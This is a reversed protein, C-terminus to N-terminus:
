ALSKLKEAFIKAPDPPVLKRIREAGATGMQQLNARHQWLRELGRALVPATAAEVLLGTIGDEIIESRGAVDTALV